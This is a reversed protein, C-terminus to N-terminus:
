LILWCVAPTGGWWCKLSLRHQQNINLSHSVQYLPPSPQLFYFRFLSDHYPCAARCHLDVVKIRLSIVPCTRMNWKKEDPAAAVKMRWMKRDIACFSLESNNLFCSRWKRHLHQPQRWTIYAHGLRGNQWTCSNMWAVHCGLIFSFDDCSLWKQLIFNNINVGWTRLLTNIKEM